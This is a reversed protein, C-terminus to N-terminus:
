VTSTPPELGEDGVSQKAFASSHTCRPSKSVGPKEQDRSFAASRTTKRTAEGDDSGGAIADDIARAFHSETVQLYHRKAVAESNGIWACVVHIPYTEALETERTSRLNQFLKPWPKLGARKIIKKFTTRLNQDADRYRTIVHGDPRLRGDPDSGKALCAVEDLYKRVDPFLPVDRTERGEHHETKPSHVTMRGHTFDIDQWRLMLHESPCRLGGYRSLAFILRWQGDPCADIIRAAMDRTVFFERSKNGQVSLGKMDGFPNEALLKQRVAARFFQKAIACRRRVTNDALAQGGERGRQGKAKPRALWRRWEDADGPTIENLKCETGFFEVLCRRTHGYVVATDGKVDSRGAIYSDIFAALRVMAATARKPALGHAVLKEYWIDSLGVLWAAVEPNISTKTISAVNLSEVWTKITEITKKPTRGCYITHPRGDAGVFHIRRLGNKNTSISAM